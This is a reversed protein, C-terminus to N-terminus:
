VIVTRCEQPAVNIVSGFEIAAALKRRRSITKHALHSPQRREHTITGHSEDLM